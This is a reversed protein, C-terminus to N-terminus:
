KQGEWNIRANHPFLRQKCHDIFDFDDNGLGAGPLFSGNVSAWQWLASSLAGCLGLFHFDRHPVSRVPVKAYSPWNALSLEAFM